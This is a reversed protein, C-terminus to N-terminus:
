YPAATLYDGQEIKGLLGAIEAALLLIGAIALLQWVILYEPQYVSDWLIPFLAAAGCLLGLLLSRLSSLMGRLSTLMHLYLIDSWLFPVLMYLLSVGIGLPNVGGTIGLFLALIVLDCLGAELMRICVMQKLNLYLTQELEAMHRSFLRVTQSFCLNGAFTFFVSCSSLRSLDGISEQRLFLALFMAGFLLIGQLLWHAASQFRMQNWIHECLSPYRRIRKRGAEAGIAALSQKKKDPDLPFRWESPLTGFPNPGNGLYFLFRKKKQKKGSSLTNLLM